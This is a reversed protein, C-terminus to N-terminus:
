AAVRDRKDQAMDPMEVTFVTGRIDPASSQVRVAGGFRSTLKSVLALGLGSGEVQDRSKLTKFLDFIKAQFRPEIGPGDDLVDFRLMGELQTFAVQIKGSSKDHHKIANTILNMLIQRVPTSHCIIEGPDNILSIKFAGAPDLLDSMAKIEIGFDFKSVADNGNGAGAQAYTLLDGQLTALRASRDILLELNNVSSESLEDAADELTWKALDQIADLPSRLDHAAVYAFSQLEANSRNLEAAQRKFVDLARAIDTFEDQGTIRVPHEYDGHSIILVDETLATFRRNIQKQIVSRNIWFMGLMVLCTTILSTWTISNTLREALQIDSDFKGTALDVYADIVTNLNAVSIAQQEKIDGFRIQLTDLQQSLDIYGGSAALSLNLAKTIRALREREPSDQLLILSQSISKVLFHLPDHFRVGSHVMDLPQYSQIINAMDVAHSNLTNLTETERAFSLLATGNTADRPTYERNRDISSQTLVLTTADILMQEVIDHIQDTMRLVDAAKLNRQEELQRQEIQNSFLAKNSVAFESSSITFPAEAKSDPFLTEIESLVQDAHRKSELYSAQLSRLESIPLKVELRDTQGLVKTILRTFEQTKKQLPISQNLFTHQTESLRYIQVGISTQNIVVFALLAAMAASLRFVVSEDWRRKISMLSGAM